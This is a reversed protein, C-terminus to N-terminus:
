GALRIYFQATSKLVVKAEPIGSTSSSDRLNLETVRLTATNRLIDLSKGGPGYGVTRNLLGEPAPDLTFDETDLVLGSSDIFDITIRLPKSTTNTM